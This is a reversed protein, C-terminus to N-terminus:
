DCWEREDDDDDEDLYPDECVADEWEDVEEERFDEDIDDDCKISFRFM